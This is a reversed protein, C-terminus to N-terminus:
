ARGSGYISSVFREADAIQQPKRGAQTKRGLLHCLLLSSHVLRLLLRGSDLEESLLVTCVLESRKRVMRNYTGCLMLFVRVRNRSRVKKQKGQFLAASHDESKIFAHWKRESHIILVKKLHRYPFSGMNEQATCSDWIFLM